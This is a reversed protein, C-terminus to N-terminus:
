PQEWIARLTDESVLGFSLLVSACSAGYSSRFFAQDSAFEARREGCQILVPVLPELNPNSKLQSQIYDLSQASATASFALCTALMAARAVEGPVRGPHQGRQYQAAM